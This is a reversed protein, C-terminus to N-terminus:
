ISNGLMSGFGLRRRRRLAGPAEVRRVQWEAGSLRRISPDITM